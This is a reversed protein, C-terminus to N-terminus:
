LGVAGAGLAGAVIALSWVLMQSGGNGGTSLVAADSHGTASQTAAGSSTTGAIVVGTLNISTSGNAAGSAGQGNSVRSSYAAAGGTRALESISLESEVSNTPAALAQSSAPATVPAQQTETSVAASDTTGIHSHGYSHTLEADTVLTLRSSLLCSLWSSPFVSDADFYTCSGFQVCADIGNSTTLPGVPDQALVGAALSITLLAAAVSRLYM